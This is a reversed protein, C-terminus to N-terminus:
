HDENKVTIDSNILQHLFDHCKEGCNKAAHHMLQHSYFIYKEGCNKAAHLM